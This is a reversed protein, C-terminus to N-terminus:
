FTATVVEGDAGITLEIGSDLEAIPSGELWTLTWSPRPSADATTADIRAIEARLADPVSAPPEGGASWRTGLQM